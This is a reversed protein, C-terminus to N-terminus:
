EILESARELFVMFAEHRAGVIGVEAIDRSAMSGVCHALCAEGKGNRVANM